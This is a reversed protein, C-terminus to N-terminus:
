QRNKQISRYCFFSYGVSVLVILAIIVAMCYSAIRPAFLVSCICILLGGAFFLISGLRHTRRWTEENELTWPTRIGIFYNPKISYMSNGLFVFLGGVLLLVPSGLANRHLAGYTLLVNVATMFVMVGLAIKQAAAASIKASKKPDLVPLFRCLLYVLAAIVTVLVSQGLLATKSGYKDPTGDLGYHLAVTGPLAPYALGLYLLPVFLLVAAVMDTWGFRKM